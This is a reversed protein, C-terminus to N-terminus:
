NGREPDAAQPRIIVSRKSMAVSGAGTLEATPGVGDPRYATPALTEESATCFSMVGTTVGPIMRCQLSLWPKAISEFM